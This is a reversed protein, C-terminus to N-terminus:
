GSNHLRSAFGTWSFVQPVAHGTLAQLIAAIEIRYAM